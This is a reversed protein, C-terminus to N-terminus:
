EGPYPPLEAFPTDADDSHFSFVDPAVPRGYLVWFMHKGAPFQVKQNTLVGSDPDFINSFDSVIRFQTNCSNPTGLYGPVYDIVYQLGDNSPMYIHATYEGYEQCTEANDAPDEGLCKVYEETPKPARFTGTEFNIRTGPGVHVLMLSAEDEFHPVLAFYPNQDIFDMLAPRPEVENNRLYGGNAANGLEFLPLFGFQGLGENELSLSNDFVLRCTQARSQVHRYITASATAQGTRKKFLLTGTEHPYLSFLAFTTDISQPAGDVVLKFNTGLNRDVAVPEATRQGYGLGTVVKGSPGYLSMSKSGAYGNFVYLHVVENGEGGEGGCSTMGVMSLAVVGLSVLKNAIGSWNM